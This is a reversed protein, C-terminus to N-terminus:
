ILCSKLTQLFIKNRDAFVMVVKLVCFKRKGRNALVLQPPKATGVGKMFWSIFENLSFVWLVLVVCVSPPPHHLVPLGGNSHTVGFMQRLMNLLCSSQSCYTDEGRGPQGRSARSSLSVPVWAPGTPLCSAAKISQRNFLQSKHTQQM